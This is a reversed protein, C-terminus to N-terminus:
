GSRRLNNTFYDDYVKLIADKKNGVRSENIYNIFSNEKDNLFSININSLIMDNNFMYYLQKLYDLSVGLNNCIITFFQDQVNCYSSLFYELDLYKSQYWLERSLELEFVSILDFIENLNISKNDVRKALNVYFEKSLSIAISARLASEFNGYCGPEIVVGHNELVKYFSDGEQGINSDFIISYAYFMKNVEESTLNPFCAYLKNIDSSFLTYEIDNNPNFTALKMAEISKIERAYVYPEKDNDLTCRLSETSAESFWAWNYPNIENNDNSYLYGVKNKLGNGLENKNSGTLVHITEHSIVDNVEDNSLTENIGLISQEPNYYGYNYGKYLFVKLNSLNSNIHEKDLSVGNVELKKYNDIIKQCVKYVFENTTAFYNDNNYEEQYKNNNDLVKNYLEDISLYDENCKSIEYNIHEGCFFDEYPYSVEISKVSEEFVQMSSFNVQRNLIEKDEDSLTLGEYNSEIIEITKNNDFTRNNDVNSNYTKDFDDSDKIFSNDKQLGCSTLFINLSLIMLAIRKKIDM